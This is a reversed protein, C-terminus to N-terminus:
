PVDRWARGYQIDALLQTTVGFQEAIAKRGGWKVGRLLTKIKRVNEETLKTRIGRRSNEAQTVPELHAPNVCWRNRCSHDLQRGEPIWGNFIQYVWRHALLTRGSSQKCGYGTRKNIKGLWRWCGDHGEMSILPKLIDDTKRGIM